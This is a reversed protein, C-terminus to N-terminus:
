AARRAPGAMERCSEACRRCVDACRQMFEDAGLAECSEACRNCVDACVECARSHLDSGRLMFRASTECIDACDQLLAIHHPDAHKGGKELCHSITEICVSSCELCSEICQRMKESVHPM